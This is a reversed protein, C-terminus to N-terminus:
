PAVPRLSGCMAARSWATTGSRLLAVLSGDAGPGARQERTAESMTLWPRGALSRRRGFGEFPDAPLASEEGIETMEKGHGSAPM